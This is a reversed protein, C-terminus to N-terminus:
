AHVKRPKSYGAGPVVPIGRFTIPGAKHPESQVKGGATGDAKRRENEIRDQEKAHRRYASNLARLLHRHDGPFIDVKSPAKGASAMYDVLTEVKERVRKSREDSLAHTALDVAITSM